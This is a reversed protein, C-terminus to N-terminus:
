RSDQLHPPAPLDTVSIKHRLGPQQQNYDTFASQGTLLGTQADQAGAARSLLGASALLVSTSVVASRKAVSRWRHKTM